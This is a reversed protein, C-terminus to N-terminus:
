KVTVGAPMSYMDPLDKSFLSAPDNYMKKFDEAAPHGPYISFYHKDSENSGVYKNRWFVAMCAGRGRLPDLVNTTWYNSLTYGESGNETIGYPKNKKEAWSVLADVYLTLAAPNIGHYCDIGMLDVYDDGPWRFVIRDGAETTTYWSDMQPSICYLFNHVGRTDRLYQVTMRWFAIFESETTCSSGWWSWSQTHEHYPRLIVPVLEGRSDKLSLAFDALQDLWLLYKTRVSTGETLINRVVDKKSNDWSDSGTQPNNLHMVALIVEGREYAELMVRRRIQNEPSGSRNDAFTALDVSFVAPYDGCVERTDSRGPENYWYRGYWLDDHHGFMFGKAGITCLNAFLAKTRETANKDVISVVKSPAPNFAQTVRVSKNYYRDAVDIFKITATRAAAAGNEDAVFRCTTQDSKQDPDERIWDSDCEWRYSFNAQVTISFQGGQWLLEQSAPSLTLSRTDTNVPDAVPGEEKGCSTSLVTLSLLVPLIWSM